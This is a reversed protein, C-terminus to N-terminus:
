PPSGILWPPQLENVLKRAEDRDKRRSFDWPEGSSKTTALDLASLRKINLSKHPGNVATVINGRGYVEIFTPNAREHKVASLAYDRAARERVGALTLADVMMESVQELTPTEPVVVPNDDLVPESPSPDEEMSGGGSGSSAEKEFRM